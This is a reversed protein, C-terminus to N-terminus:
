TYDDQPATRTQMEWFACVDCISMSDSFNIGNDRAHRLIRLRQSNVHGMRRHWLDAPAQLASLAARNGPPASTASAFGLDFSFIDQNKDLRRLPLVHQGQELRPRSDIIAALGTKAEESASFPHHGLGPVVLGPLDVRGKSSNEYVIVGSATGTATGLLVHRGATVMKHPGDLKTHNLLQDKLGPHLEDDFYHASAGSDVLMTMTPTMAQTTTLPRESKLWRHLKKFGQHFLVWVGVSITLASPLLHLLTMWTDIHLVPQSRPLFDAEGQSALSSTVFAYGCDEEETPAPETM